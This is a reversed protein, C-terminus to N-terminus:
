WAKGCCKKFKDLDGVAQQWDPAGPELLLDDSAARELVALDVNGSEDDLQLAKDVVLPVDDPRSIAILLEVCYRDDPELEIEILRDWAHEGCRSPDRHSFICSSTAAALELHRSAVM